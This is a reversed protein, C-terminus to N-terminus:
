FAVNVTFYLNYFNRYQRNEAKYNYWVGIMSLNVNTYLMYGFGGGVNTNLVSFRNYLQYDILEVDPSSGVGALATIYNKPSSLYYRANVALNYMWEGGMFFNNWRANLRFLETEKTVGLLLNFLNDKNITDTPDDQFKRYGGGIEFALGNLIDFEKAISGNVALKPFFADAFAVSVVSNVRKKWSKTWDVYGQIGRGQERGTYNIGATYSNNIGHHTYDFSAISRSTKSDAELKSSLYQMNIENKAVKTKLFRLHEKFDKLEILSPEYFSQYEYAEAYKKQKELALGKIYKLARSTPLYTLAENMKEIVLEVKNEKILQMGYKESIEAYTDLLLEHYPTKELELILAAYIPAYDEVKKGEFEALKAKFFVEEPYTQVGIQLYGLAEETTEKVQISLNFAYKLATKNTPDQVLWRKVIHLSEQYLFDENKSKVIATCLEEYGKLYFVRQEPLANVFIEEYASLAALYNRKKFYLESKKQLVSYDKTEVPDWTNLIHLASNYDGKKSYAQYLGVEALHKIEEDNSNGILLWQNIADDYREELMYGKAEELVVKEYASVIDVDSNDQHYLSKTLSRIKASNGLRTYVQLEKLTLTKSEGKVRKYSSLVTLAEEYQQNGILYNFVYNFAEENSPSNKLVNSYLAFPDQMKKNRAIELLYYDYKEKLRNHKLFALLEDYRMLEELIGIKKEILKKNTPFLHLGRDTFSLANYTDGVKLYNNIIELYYEVDTPFERLLQKSLEISKDFDGVEKSQNAEVELAYVYDQKLEVDAPFIYFLRKRLRDAERQNGQLTYLEIKKKWLRKAYPSVELLENVYCIASSYRKTEMEVNILIEKADINTPTIEIAKVLEYRAKDYVKAQHYYKGLLMILDSNTPSEKIGKDLLEKGEKWNGKNFKKSVLVVYDDDDDAITQGYSTFSVFLFVIIWYLCSYPSEIKKM